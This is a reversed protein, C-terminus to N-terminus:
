EPPSGSSRFHKREEEAETLLEYMRQDNAAHLAWGAATGGWRYDKIALDIGHAILFRAGDFNGHIACEHLISAPEHTSWDTNVNAGHALLFDAVQFHRNMVAWALSADLVQQAPPV